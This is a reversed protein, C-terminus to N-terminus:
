GRKIPGTRNLQDVQGKVDMSGVSRVMAKPSLSLNCQVGILIATVMADFCIVSSPLELEPLHKYTGAVLHHNGADDDVDPILLESSGNYLSGDTEM